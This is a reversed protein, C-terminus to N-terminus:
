ESLKFIRAEWLVGNDRVGGVVIVVAGWQIPCTAQFLIPLGAVVPVFRLFLDTGPVVELCVDFAYVNVEDVFLAGRRWCGRCFGDRQEEYVAPRAAEVLERADDFQERRWGGGWIDRDEVDDHDGEGAEDTIGIDM